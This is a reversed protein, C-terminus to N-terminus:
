CHAAKPKGGRGEEDAIYSCGRITMYGCYSRQQRHYALVSSEAIKLSDYSKVDIVCEDSDIMLLMMIYLM